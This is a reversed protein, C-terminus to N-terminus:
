SKEQESSQAPVAGATKQETFNTDLLKELAEVRDSLVAIRELTPNKVSTQDM